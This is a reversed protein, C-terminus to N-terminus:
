QKEKAYIDLKSQSLDYKWAELSKWASNRIDDINDTDEITHEYKFNKGNESCRLKYISKLENGEITKETIISEDLSSVFTKTEITPLQWDLEKLLKVANPLWKVKTKKM